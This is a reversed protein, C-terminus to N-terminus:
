KTTPRLAAAYFREAYEKAMRRTSFAPAISRISAKMVQVFDRPVEDESRHYYLPVIKEELLRYIAEADAKTRDGETAENGFAWGNKGDFGEIWWGDLISLNPVGNVAAKMGSTGSAELPPLPNNLWLDVGGVMALALEQDYDEVFAVRAAFESDQALRCVKQILRQGEADSPHAKGAYVIQMPHWTDLLLRKLRKLDYLILDPRKYATFRRAFGVTFIERDLLSGLALVHAPSVSGSQWRRRARENIEEFLAEKLAQHARWFERDPIKDVGEWIAPREQEELWAPGLYRDLLPQLGIPDIWTPLHVGNTISVIPVDDVKKEPWLGAWMKRAVEGHRRSVANSFGAMRLAFVTMNFGAGPQSPDVGLALVRDRDAGLTKWAAGFYKDMLPFPFIDTGATVPTHTTFISTARVRAVADDFSAGQAAMQHLRELFALAPHGENIHVAAPHIGLAELIRMGGTGLVIEQRLRQEPNTAYLHHAISRDWPQNADIDTDLLYVPVRGIDARWVAVHVPPDFFPIALVLPAGKDDLVATIPDHTRDLTREEDEQRGDDRIRQSIYGQSYILGVAVTPLALDSSEKIFDGALVGLGGAYLPLSGHFAYEASFYALPSGLRPYQAPFWGAHSAVAANFLDLVSDYLKLFGPNTAASALAEDPIMSLMRVPNEDSERWTQLDLARFMEWAERRWSWWLNYALRELGRLREPLNPFRPTKNDIADM